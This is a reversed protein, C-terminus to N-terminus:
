DDDPLTYSPRQELFHKTPYKAPIAKFVIPKQRFNFSDAISTARADTYGLSAVGFTQEVFKLISGFEYQTHSVYHPKAYPSIVICPVREALGLFDLQPPPVDDYWGGWDDWLVFIATNKWYQSKGITNVVAAVWSPGTDSGSGEHDSNTGDPIVWSVTPLTGNPIDQLITTEPSIVDKAWDAGGYVNEIAGFSSWLNGGTNKTVTPAYYRWTVNAADLTDAMTHFQSPKFCPPPGGGGWIIQGNAKHTLIRTPPPPSAYCTWNQVDQNYPTDIESVTTGGKKSIVTTGAILDLHATFSNGWVTPFMKDDLTYQQAMTWYPKVDKSELHAYPYTGAPQKNNFINEDFGDMKGNDYNTLAMHYTHSIGVGFQGFGMAKLSIKKGKHTYGYTPADAGPYGAFIDDFSRNEQVIIVVHKIPSSFPREAQAVPLAANFAATHPQGSCALTSSLLAVGALRNVVRKGVSGYSALREREEFFQKPFEQV